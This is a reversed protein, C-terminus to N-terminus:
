VFEKARGNKRMRLSQRDRKHQALCAM